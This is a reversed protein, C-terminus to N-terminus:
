QVEPPIPTIIVQSADNTAQLASGTNNHVVVSYFRSTIRCIGSAVNDETANTDQVVVSGIYQMNPLEDIDGVADTTGITGDANTGDSQSIYIDVTQGVTHTTANFQFIGRWEYWESRVVDGLDLRDSERVASIGLANLGLTTAAATTDDWTRVTEDTPNIYIKNAM